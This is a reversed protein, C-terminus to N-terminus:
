NFNLEEKLLSDTKEWPNYIFDKLYTECFYKNKKILYGNFPNTTYWPLVSLITFMLPSIKQPRNDYSFWSPIFKFYGLRYAERKEVFEIM